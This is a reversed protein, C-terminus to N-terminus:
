KKGAYIGNKELMWGLVEGLYTGGNYFQCIFDYTGEENISMEVLDEDEDFEKHKVFEILWWQDKVEVVDYPFEKDCYEEDYKKTEDIYIRGCESLKDVWNAVWYESLNKNIYEITDKTTRTIVRIKGTHTETRSM